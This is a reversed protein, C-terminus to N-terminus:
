MPPSLRRRLRLLLEGRRWFRLRLEDCRWLWWERRRRLGLGLEQRRTRRGLRWRLLRPNRPRRGRFRRALLLLRGPLRDAGLSLPQGGSRVAAVPVGALGVAGRRRRPSVVVRRGAVTRRMTRWADAFRRGRREFSPSPMGLPGGFRRCALWGFGRGFPALRATACSGAM